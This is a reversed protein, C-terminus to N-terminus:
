WYIEHWLWSVDINLPVLQLTLVAAAFVVRDGCIDVSRLNALRSHPGDIFDIARLSM